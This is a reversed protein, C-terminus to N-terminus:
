VYLLELSDLRIRMAQKSVNFSQALTDSVPIVLKNYERHLIDKPMLLEAAFKNAETEIPSTDMRFSTIIKDKTNDLHLFYHGLEHAITFRQRTEMDNQNVFIMSQNNITRIAGSIKKQTENEIKTFDFNVIEIKESECISALDIPLDSIKKDKLVKKAMLIPDKYYAYM